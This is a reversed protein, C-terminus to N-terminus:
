PTDAEGADDRKGYRASEVTFEGFRSDGRRVEIVTPGRPSYRDFRLECPDAGSTGWAEIALIRGEADISTELEIGGVSSSLVDVLRPSADDEDGGRPATGLYDTRGVAAPGELLLKRWLWAAALMGGSGPPVPQSDLSKAADLRSTGTPLDIRGGNSDLELRFPRGDALSGELLWPGSTAFGGASRIAEAVRDREIRNFHYNVFGTRAEYLGRLSEPLPPDAPSGAGDEPPEGRDGDDGERPGGPPHPPQQQGGIAALKALEAASHVGALRVSIVAPRGERRFELPVRWGAPLIGLVNKMANVTRVPRGAFSVLEDDYRLGRRYADSNELIDSVYIRGDNGTAVTAGLTAHDVLRGGRLSGMFNGLQNSSIAYGVGVNVRGRKEFSGRGNIGILRGEADFLGGGSNGPNIAADVQLCDTYELITGAPFQYRHVGSVIGLSVSPQLNSALLFPNGITYCEDGVHVQDSDALPVFPFDDRGVLKILAVDGTPDLGVVIADYLKGDSLGCRMALGAPQVVHFNTLAYGDPSVLVGSGGGQDAFIAISAQSARAVVAVRAQEAELVRQSPAAPLRGPLGAAILLGLAMWAVARRLTPVLHM